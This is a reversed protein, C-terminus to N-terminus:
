FSHFKGWGTSVTSSPESEEGNCIRLVRRGSSSELLPVNSLDTRPLGVSHSDTAYTRSEGSSGNVPNCSWSYRDRLVTGGLGTTLTGDSRLKVYNRNSTYTNTRGMTLNTGISSVFIVVRYESHYGDVDSATITGPVPTPTPTPTPTAGPTPTFIPQGGVQGEPTPSSGIGSSPSRTAIYADLVREAVVDQGAEALGHKAAEEYAAIYVLSYEEALSTVWGAQQALVVGTLTVLSAAALLVIMIRLRKM